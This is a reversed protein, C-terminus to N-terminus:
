QSRLYHMLKWMSCNLTVNNSSGALTYCQHIVLGALLLCSFQYTVLSVIVVCSYLKLKHCVQWSNAIMFVPRLM